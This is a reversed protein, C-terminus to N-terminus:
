RAGLGTSKVVAQYRALDTGLLAAFANPADFSVEDGEQELQSILEPDQLSKRIGDVLRAVVDAPLGAPGVVGYWGNM